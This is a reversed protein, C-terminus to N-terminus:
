GEDSIVLKRTDYEEIRLDAPKNINAIGGCYLYVTNARFNISAIDYLKGDFIYRFKM